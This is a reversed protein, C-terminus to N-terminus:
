HYISLIFTFHSISKSSKLGHECCDDSPYDIDNHEDSNECNHTETDCPGECATVIGLCLCIELGPSDVYEHAHYDEEEEAVDELEECRPYISLKFVELIPPKIKLRNNTSKMRSVYIKPISEFVLAGKM